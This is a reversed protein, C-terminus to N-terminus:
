GQQGTRIRITPRNLGPATSVGARTAPESARRAPPLVALALRSQRLACSAGPMAVTALDLPRVLAEVVAVSHTAPETGLYSVTAYRKSRSVAPSSSLV